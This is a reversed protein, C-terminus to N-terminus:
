RRRGLWRRLKTGGGFVILLFGPVVIGLLVGVVVCGLLLDKIAKLWEPNLILLLAAYPLGLLWALQTALDHM